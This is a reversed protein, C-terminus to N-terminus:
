ATVLHLARPEEGPLQHVGGWWDLHQHQVPEDGSWGGDGALVSSGWGPVDSLHLPHSFERPPFDLLARLVM